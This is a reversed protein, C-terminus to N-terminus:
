YASHGCSRGPDLYKVTSCQGQDRSWGWNERRSGKVTAWQCMRLSEFEGHSRLNGWYMLEIHSSSRGKLLAKVVQGCKSGPRQQPCLALRTGLGNQPRPAVFPRPVLSVCRRNSYGGGGRTYPYHVRANM